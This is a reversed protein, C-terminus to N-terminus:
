KLYKKCAKKDINSLIDKIIKTTLTKYTKEFWMYEKKKSFCKEYTMTPKKWDFIYDWMYENFIYLCLYYIKTIYWKIEYDWSDQFKWEQKDYENQLDILLISPFLWLQIWLNQHIIYLLDLKKSFNEKWSDIIKQFIEIDVRLDWWKWFYWYDSKFAHKWRTKAFQLYNALYFWLLKLISFSWYLWFLDLYLKQFNKYKENNFVIKLEELDKKIFKLVEQRYPARYYFYLSYWNWLEYSQMRWNKHWLWDDFYNFFFVNFKTKELIENEKENLIFFILQHILLFFDHEFLRVFILYYIELLDFSFFNM